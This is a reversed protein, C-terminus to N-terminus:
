RNVAKDITAFEEKARKRLNMLVNEFFKDNAYELGEIEKQLEEEELIADPYGISAWGDRTTVCESNEPYGFFLPERLFLAM